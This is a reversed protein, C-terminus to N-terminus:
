RFQSICFVRIEWSNGPIILKNKNECYLFLYAFLYSVCSIYETYCKFYWKSGLLM